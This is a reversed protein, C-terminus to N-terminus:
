VVERVKSGYAVVSKVYCNLLRKKLEITIDRRLFDKCKWFATKAKGIRQKVEKICRGREEIISGLYTYKKM